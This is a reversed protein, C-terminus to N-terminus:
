SGPEPVVQGSADAEDEGGPTEQEIGFHVNDTDPDFGNTFGELEKIYDDTINTYTGSQKLDKGVIDETVVGRDLYIADRQADTFQMDATEKPTMQFLSNFEYDLDSDKPLGLSRAMMLDFKDLLPKYVRVQDSKVKDYYNKLDGEGTANFGSASSGLLRTAPIDTGASLYLAFRDMLDPLGTFNNTKTDFDEKTDLLLMNNFSKMMSALTFRKRLRSEGEATQLFNMLGDVKVVDVNAEYIMSASANTATNFNTLAEYLRDLVSASYYSNRRFEDFPLKIGDFRLVRSHHIKVSTDNFRYFEPMGFNVDLPDSTPIVDTSSIRHRDITKIHRLGGVRINDINLPKDPTQGDDISLVIFATGYLRAWKNAENFNAVLALRNEEGELEKVTDPDIQGTFSRWECTMDDPVIDVVKGALWDTVYMSTLEEQNGNSSLRKNNVFKSHSRKDQGTGLNAVLNELGDRNSVSEDLIEAKQSINNKM